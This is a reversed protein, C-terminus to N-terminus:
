HLPVGCERFVVEAAFAAEPGMVTRLVGVLTSTFEPGHAAVGGAVLHHAVEHLVVLERLAWAGEASAPVAIVPPDPEYHASGAGRRSRVRVDPTRGLLRLAQDVYRQVSEVSAFRAEPPLTLAVGFVDVQRGPAGSAHDFLGRVM